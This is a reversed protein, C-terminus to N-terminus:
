RSLKSCCTRRIKCRSAPFWFSRMGTFTYPEPGTISHAPMGGGRVYHIGIHFRKPIHTAHKITLDVAGAKDATRALEALNIRHPGPNEEAGVVVKKRALDNGRLDKGVASIEYNRGPYSPYVDAFCNWSLDSFLPVIFGLPKKTGADSVPLTDLHGGPGNYNFNSHDIAMAGDRLRRSGSMLRPFVGIVTFSVEITGPLGKMHGSVDAMRHPYYVRTEFPAFTVNPIEVRLKEGLHNILTMTATHAPVARPGNHVVFFSELGPDDHITWNGECTNQFTEMRETTDGSDRSLIRSYSHTM